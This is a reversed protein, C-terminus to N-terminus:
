GRYALPELGSEAEKFRVPAYSADVVRAQAGGKVVRRLLAVLAIGCLLTTIFLNGALLGVIVPSYKSLTAAILFNADSSPSTFSDTTGLAGVADLSDTSDDSGDDANDDTSDDDSTNQFIKLLTAPDITPPYAALQQARSTKFDAWADDTNTLPLMQVYSGNKNLFKSPADADGYSFSTYVNRLFSDGLTHDQGAFGERVVSNLFRSSCYTVNMQSGDPKEVTATQLATLDLPHVPYEIGGMVFSVNLAADCPVFWIDEALAAGPIAGYISAVWSPDIYALSTGTDLLAASKGPPMGSVSSNSLTYKEGNVSLADVAVAWTVPSQPLNPLKPQEAVREFGELHEGILLLGEVTDNVDHSRQLSVDFFSPVGSNQTFISALPALGQTPAFGFAELFINMVSSNTGSFGLGLIGVWPDGFGDPFGSTNRPDTWLLAQLPVTYNGFAVDTFAITGNLAGTGYLENVVINTMNIIKPPTDGSIWFDNSGTDAVVTYTTGGVVIDVVYTLDDQLSKIAVADSSPSRPVVTDARVRRM